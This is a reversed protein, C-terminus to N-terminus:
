KIKVIFRSGKGLDSKAIITGNHARVIWKCIALGLGTGENDLVKKSKVRYFREFIHPLDKKPIGCGTDSIEIRAKEADRSLITEIKGGSSTYKIANSILNLFLEKLKVRDGLVVLKDKEKLLFNIKKDKALIKSQEYVEKILHNLNVSEMSLQQQGFDAKALILLDRVLRSARDTAKDIVDLAKLKINGKIIALPTQLEHSINALFKSQADYLKKLEETRKEVKDELHKSYSKIEEYLKANEIAVGAQHSFTELLEIDRQHFTDGSLKKGLILIGVLKKKYFIPVALSAELKELLDEMEELKHKSSQSAKNIKYRLEQYIISRRSGRLFEILKQIEKDTGKEDL